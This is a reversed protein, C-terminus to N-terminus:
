ELIAIHGNNRGTRKMDILVKTSEQRLHQSFNDASITHSLILNQTKLLLEKQVYCGGCSATIHQPTENLNFKYDSFSKIIDMIVSNVYNLDSHTIIVAFEDGGLRGIFCTNDKILSAFNSAITQYLTYIVMDGFSYGFQDNVRMFNDIDFTLFTLSNLNSQSYLEECREFFQGNSPLHSLAKNLNFVSNATLKKEYSDSVLNIISPEQTVSFDNPMATTREENPLYSTLTPNLLNLLPISKDLQNSMHSSYKQKILDICKKIQLLHTVGDDVTNRLLAEQNKLLNLFTEISIDKQLLTQIEKLSFGFTQLTVITFVTDQQESSYYRYGTQADSFHPSLLSLQDFHRLMRKSVGTLTSFSGILYLDEM